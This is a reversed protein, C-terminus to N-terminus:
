LFLMGGTHVGGFETLLKEPFTTPENNEQWQNRRGKKDWYLDGAPIDSYAKKYEESPATGNNAYGNHHVYTHNCPHPKADANLAYQETMIGYTQNGEIDCRFVMTHATGVIRLGVGPMFLPLDPRKMEGLINKSDLIRSNSITVHESYGPEGSTTVLLIGMVNNHVSMENLSVKVGDTIEVGLANNYSETRSVTVGQCKRLSLGIYGNSRLVCGEITINASNEFRLADGERVAIDLKRLTVNERDNLILGEGEFDRVHFGEVVVDNAEITIPNSMRSVLEKNFGNLLAHVGEYEMGIVNLGPTTIKISQFYEGPLVQISDGSVAKDITEQISMGPSVTYKTASALMPMAVLIALFIRTLARSKFSM